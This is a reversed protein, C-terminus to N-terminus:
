SECACCETTHTATPQGKLHIHNVAHKQENALKAPVNDTPENNM